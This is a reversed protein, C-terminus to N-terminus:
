FNTTFNTTTIDTSSYRGTNLLEFTMSYNLTTSGGWNIASFNLIM